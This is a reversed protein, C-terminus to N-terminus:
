YIFEELCFGSCEVRFPGFPSPEPPTTLPATEPALSFFILEVQNAALDKVPPSYEIKGAFWPIVTHQDSSPVDLLHDALLSRTHSSTIEAVIPAPAAARFRLRQTSGYWGLLSFWHQPLM